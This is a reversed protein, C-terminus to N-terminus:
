VTDFQNSHLTQAVRDLELSGAQEVAQAWVQVTAYGNLTAGTPEYNAYRFKAVVAAVAPNERV